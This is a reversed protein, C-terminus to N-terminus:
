HQMEKEGNWNTFGGELNYVQEFGKGSMVQSAKSSRKGAACYVLYTKKKDLADIKAAFEPDNINILTADPIHGAKYEEPTRVDIIVVNEQKMKEAFVKNDAQYYTTTSTQSCASWSVLLLLFLLPNKM